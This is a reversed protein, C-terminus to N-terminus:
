YIVISGGKRSVGGKEDNSLFVHYTGGPANNLTIPIVSGYTLGAAKQSQMLQGMSNYIKVNLKTYLDTNLKISFRGNNPSPFILVAPFQDLTLHREACENVRITGSVASQCGDNSATYTVTKTGVSAVSPVFSNGAVGSGSFVGGVPTASLTVAGDSVCVVAVPVFSIVPYTTVTFVAADSTVSGCGATVIVRFRYNHQGAPVAAQAFSSSTAGAIDSYTTGGNTSVQWQYTLVGVGTTAIIGVTAAAGECLTVNQPQATIAPFTNVTLLAGASIGPTCVGNSVVCRYRNGNLSPPVGTITLAPTTAGAYVGGNTISTYSGSGVSLEWQYSLGSGAASASFTTTTAECVTRDVPSGSITISSSVTLMATTTNVSGCSNTVVCRYQDGNMAFTTSAINYTASVAGPINTFAPVASTSVQWQYTPSPTGTAATTFSVASGSCVNLSVPNSTVTPAENVTLTANISTTSGCQGTVVCRYQNGNMGATVAALNLTAATAGGINTFAPVAATSVQWQYTGTAIVNYSVNTGACGAASLPQGTIAPGSGPDIIFSVITIQTVAPSPGSGEITVNYTGPLLTNANNLTVLSSNGPVVPNTGFSITTGAPVGATATLTVPNVYGGNSLVPVALTMATPAPCIVTAPLIMGFSFGVPPPTITIGANNIDFFVNGIAEVKIRGTTTLVAPITISETGDNATSAALVTPFTLGGDASFTIKVNTCNVPAGTTGNVSWTVTQTTGSVYSVATNQSTILFPGTAANVTIVMDTFQTQGVAGTAGNYPRNDRVTLRFNLNRGVSSLAEINIGPDGGPLPGTISAGSLITNLVPFTRTPSTTPAFSLWNPGTLKAPSAISNSGSTTSNDNQEWCYTLVDGPDADTASGTLQFPTGMPITQDPVTAVVPTANIGTLPTTVPCNKTALNVQIQNISALHFIDISHPAVDFPTIGAYGMITIGSGVEKNTGTGELGFSFTHTAGLQHGIEHAVYDIDFGDGAPPFSASPSVSGTAPSTIGSGKIGDDCVCGICGANGGGGSAGFLHGIDYNAEGILTTLTSQLSSNWSAPPSLPNTVTAYPDTAPDYFLVATTSAILNLHLALDKEYVGNCRTLTNNYAALVIAQDAPTGAASAGFFNAYEGTCSQVLRMTKLQGANSETRNTSAIQKNIGAALQQDQTNCLWPLNGKTRQSRFVAYIVHDASYAEIYENPGDARFVMTQIGRPSYSLKLMASKDSIGKGSFARIEPFRAQLVLDFNSAEVVEFQEIEGAANPLSIVTSLGTQKNTVSFLANRLPEMDLEFLKFVEPFSARAVAKDKTIVNADTRVSWYRQQAFVTVGTLCILLLLVIKRM